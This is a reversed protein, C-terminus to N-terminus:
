SSILLFHSAFLLFHTYGSPTSGGSFFVKAFFLKTFFTMSFREAIFPDPFPFPVAVALPLPLPLSLCFSSTASWYNALEIGLEIRASRLAGPRRAANHSPSGTQRPPQCGSARKKLSERIATM